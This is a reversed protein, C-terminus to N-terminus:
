ANTELVPCEDHACISISGGNHIQFLDDDLMTGFNTYNIEDNDKKCRAYGLSCPYSDEYWEGGCSDDQHRLIFKASIRSHGKEHDLNIYIYIQNYAKNNNRNDKKKADIDLADLM